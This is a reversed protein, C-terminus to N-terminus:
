SPERYEGYYEDWQLKGNNTNFEDGEYWQYGFHLCRLKKACTIQRDFTTCSTCHSEGWQGIRQMGLRWTFFDTFYKKVMYDMRVTQEPDNPERTRAPSKLCKKNRIHWNLWGKTRQSQNCIPCKLDGANARTNQGFLMRDFDDLNFNEM